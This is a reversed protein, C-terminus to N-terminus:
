GKTNTTYTIELCAIHFQSHILPLHYKNQLDQKNGVISDFGNISRDLNVAYM